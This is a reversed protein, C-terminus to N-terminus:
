GTNKMAASIGAISTMLADELFKKDLNKYDIKNNKLEFNNFDLKRKKIETKNTIEEIKRNSAIYYYKPVNSFKISETIMWIGFKKEKKDVKINGKQGSVVVIIDDNKCAVFMALPFEDILQTIKLFDTESFADPVYM